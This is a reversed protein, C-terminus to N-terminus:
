ETAACAREETAPFGAAIWADYGGSVNMVHSFGASQLLSAAIASRYGSKCHVALSCDRDLARMSHQLGDLPFHLAGPIHSAEWEAPRRVDLVVLDDRQMEERLDFVTIQPTMHLARGDRVWGDVGDEVYGAVREFGIRALRMRSESAKKEDECVLVIESDAGILAGAWAAFQGALGINLSGPIHGAGYDSASRTDLLVTGNRRMREAATPSLAPLPPLDSLAGAGQRNLEVDKAFYEPRPPLDATMLRVFEDRAMPRLAYNLQRERGITSFRDASINRGCMSGAGHAPYVLVSDPLSLLKQHLSDYLIGALQQPTHTESLDPRGVDGIFLTDGTLVAWPEPGVDADFVL